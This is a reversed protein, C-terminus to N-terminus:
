GSRKIFANMQAVFRARIEPLKKDRAPRIHPRAAMKSTGFELARAYPATSRFEAKLPGTQLTEFNAQLVGTDRNPPDGPKSAVHNKGSVSGASVMRFAEARITDAGEYAIAGAIRTAEPSALRRLRDVHKKAGILPMPSDPVSPTDGRGNGKMM